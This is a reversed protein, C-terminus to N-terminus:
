TQEGGEHITTVGDQAPRASWRKVKPTLYYPPREYEKLKQQLDTIRQSLSAMFRYEHKVKGAEVESVLWVYWGPGEWYIDVHVIETM